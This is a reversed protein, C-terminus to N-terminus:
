SEHQVETPLRRLEGLMSDYALSLHSQMERRAGEVDGEVLAAYITTHSQDTLTQRESTRPIELLYPRSLEMLTSQIGALVENGSLRAIAVHFRIDREVYEARDLNSAFQLLSELARRVPLLDELRRREAARGVLEVEILRRADLLHLVNNTGTALTSQLAIPIADNIGATMSRAAIATTQLFAGVRPVIRIAGRAQAHLLADRVVTPKVNLREALERMSPLQRGPGMKEQEACRVIESWIRDISGPSDQGGSITRNTVKTSSIAKM